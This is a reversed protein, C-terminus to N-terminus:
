QPTHPATTYHSIGHNSLYTKLSLIEGGNDSYLAKTTSQFRKKLWCKSNPFSALFRLNQPCQIFGCINPIIIWLFFIMAHVVLGLLTLLVGFMLTYLTLHLTFKFVQLVLLNNIRKIQPVHLVYLHSNKQQFLFHYDISLINFFKLQLTDLVNTGGTSHPENTCMLLKKKLPLFWWPTQFCTSAM